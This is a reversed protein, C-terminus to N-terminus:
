FFVRTRKLHTKPVRSLIMVIHRSSCIYKIKSSYAAITQIPLKNYMSSSINICIDLIISKCKNIDIDLPFVSEVMKNIYKHKKNSKKDDNLLGFCQSM